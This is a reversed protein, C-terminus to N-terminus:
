LFPKAVMFYIALIVSLGAIRGASVLRERVAVYEPSFSVAGDGSAAVDRTALEAAKEGQPGFFTGGMILLVLLIILPVTVWVEDWVEADTALYIGTLLAVGGAPAILKKGIMVQMEHFVPVMRPHNKGLFPGMLPYAFTVGFALVIASVHLWVVVNYFEVALPM